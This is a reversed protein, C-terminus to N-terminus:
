TFIVQGSYPIATYTGDTGANELSTMQRTGVIPSKAGAALVPASLAVTLAVLAIKLTNKM